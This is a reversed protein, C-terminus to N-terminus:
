ISNHLNSVILIWKTRDQPKTFVQMLIITKNTKNIVPICYM